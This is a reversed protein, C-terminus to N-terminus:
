RRADRDQAGSPRGTARTQATMAPFRGTWDHGNRTFCRVRAGNRRVMLRYGDFKIEHVWLPGSPPLAVKSPLCPAIFGSSHRVIM